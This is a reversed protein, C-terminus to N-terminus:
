ELEDAARERVRDWQPFVGAVPGRPAADFDIM